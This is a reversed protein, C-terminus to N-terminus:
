RANDVTYIQCSGGRLNHDNFFVSYSNILISRVEGKPVARM